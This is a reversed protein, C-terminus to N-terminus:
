SRLAQTTSLFSFLGVGARHPATAHTFTSFFGFRAGIAGRKLKPQKAKQAIAAELQALVGRGLV